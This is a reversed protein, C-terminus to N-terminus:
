EKGGIRRGSYAIDGLIDPDSPEDHVHMMFFVSEQLHLYDGTLSLAVRSVRTPPVLFSSANASSRLTCTMVIRRDLVIAVKRWQM